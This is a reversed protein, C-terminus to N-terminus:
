LGLRTLHLRAGDRVTRMLRQVPQSFSPERHMTHCYNALVLAQEKVLAADVHMPILTEAFQRLVLGAKTFPNAMTETERCLSALQQRGYYARLPDGSPLVELAQAYFLPSAVYFFRDIEQLQKEGAAAHKRHGDYLYAAEACTRMAELSQVHSPLAVLFARREELLGHTLSPLDEAIKKASHQAQLYFKENEAPIPAFGSIVGLQKVLGDSVNKPMLSVM